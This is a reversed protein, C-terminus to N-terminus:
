KGCVGAIQYLMIGTAVSVNLSEAQGYIPIHVRQDAQELLESAIGNGENGVILAVKDPISVTGIPAAKELTSAWVHVGEAQLTKTYDILEKQLIPLHFISGQSARIVKDNFVDVTGDGLVVADFGAADATRIITGLNGPDQIADLLVYRNKKQLVPEQMKVIAIIGQPTKTNSLYQMVNESVLTIIETPIELHSTFDEQIIIAEVQWDSNWAEEVLHLGEVLFSGAQERYKKKHLKAYQKITENKVSTIMM